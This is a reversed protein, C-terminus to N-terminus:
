LDHTLDPQMGSQLVAADNRQVCCELICIAEVKHFYTNVPGRRDYWPLSETCARSAFAEQWRLVAFLEHMGACLLKSRTAAQGHLQAFGPPVQWVLTHRPM